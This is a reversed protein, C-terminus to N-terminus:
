PTNPSIMSDIYSRFNAVLEKGDMLKCLSKLNPKSSLFRELQKATGDDKKDDSIFILSKNSELLAKSKNFLADDAYPNLGTIVVELKEPTNLYANPIIIELQKKSYLAQLNKHSKRAVLNILEDDAAMGFKLIEAFVNIHVGIKGLKFHNRLASLLIVSQSYDFRENLTSKIFINTDVICYAFNFKDKIQTDFQVNDISTKVEPFGSNVIELERIKEQDNAFTQPRIARVFRDKRRKKLLNNVQTVLLLYNHLKDNEYNHFDIGEKIWFGNPPETNKLEYLHSFVNIKNSATIILIPIAKFRSRIKMFLDVGSINFVDKRIGVEDFLRLDMIVLDIFNGKNQSATVAKTFQHFIQEVTNSKVPVIKDLHSNITKEDSKGYIIKSFIQYWGDDAQDDILIINPLPKLSHLEDAQKQIKSVLGSNPYGKSYNEKFHILPIVSNSISEVRAKIQEPYEETFSNDIQKYADWLCKIGWINAERHRLEDISFTQKLNQKVIETEAKNKSKNTVDVNNLDFPLQMFSTGKSTAILNKPQRNLLAHLTEFSYM